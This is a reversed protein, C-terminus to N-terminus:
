GTIMKKIGKFFHGNAILLLGPIVGNNMGGNIQMSRLPSSVTSALLMRYEPNDAANGGGYERAIWMKIGTYMLKMVWSHEKMEVVTNNMTFEGKVPKQPRYKKGSMQEWETLSPHGQPNEYWSGPQWEPVELIDGSVEVAASLRLDAASAGVFVTYTGAPIRWGDCWIAFTRDDFDFRVSASEGPELYLKRFGKLEKAPRYIGDDPPAIYLQVIERGARKGTNTITVTASSDTVTLDTYDFQTYSLGHGFPFRVPTAATDFYRYGVYIGERYQADKIEDYYPSSVCNEYCYPWSEVLKGSPDARGYLLNIAAEGCAQGALGMYLIAKVKDAWPCEVASGCSLVVVTAPNAEAVSEILRVHGPPMKMDERDYGESEYNEPLGAFVVAVSVSEALAVAEAILEDSTEGLRDYGPAYPLDPAAETAAVLKVPNIHSSGVGQYRPEAAMRGVLCIKATSELPLMAENKLLVAGQEAAERALDHHRDFDCATTIQKRDILDLVRKTSRDVDAEALEGTTVADLAEKEMYASGGPMCLDCGARFAAIRDSMGGWDTVVMGDFGWESRLIETLLFKNDSCYLGNLKNYASMLTAPKGEKVAIEFGTLYIERMSREDVISDSTFRNNEQNNLAFHKLSAAMGNRQLGRIWAAALKGTLYPDESFYEFNRGCLPNRKINAGPGLVLRAGAAVAEAAIAEGICELLDVDWTSATTVATPFCTAPRSVNIGLMDTGKTKDQKRLGHPGDCMAIAPIGYEGMAETEWFNAGSCLKIKDAVTMSALIKTTDM